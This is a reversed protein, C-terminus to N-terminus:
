PALGAVAPCSGGVGALSGGRRPLVRARPVLGAWAPCTGGGRALSGGVRAMVRLRPALGAWAPCSERCGMSPVVMAGRGRAAAWLDREQLIKKIGKFMVVDEGAVNETCFFSHQVKQANKIFWGDRFKWELKSAPKPNLTMRSTVLANNPYANHNTSQDFCLVDICNPHLAEFIPLAQEKLQKVMDMSKWWGDKNTGPQIIVRAEEPLNRNSEGDELWMSYFTSEDHTVLVHKNEWIRLQPSVTVEMDDGTYDDMLKRYQLMKKAWDQCYAVVDPRERGDFYIQQGAIRKKFGWLKLFKAVTSIATRAEVGFKDPLIVTQLERQLNEASR